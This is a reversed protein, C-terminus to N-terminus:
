RSSKERFLAAIERLLTIENDELGTVDIYKRKDGLLLYDTSVRLTRAMLILVELSPRRIGSEYASMTNPEVHIKDAMQKQSYGTRRRAEAIRRGMTDQTRM